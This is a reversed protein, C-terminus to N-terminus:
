PRGGEIKYILDNSFRIIFAYYEIGYAITSYQYMDAIKKVEPEYQRLGSLVEEVGAIYLKLNATAKEKPLFGYFFLKILPDPRCKAMEIPKELWDMFEATGAHSISYMKKLKGGEVVDRLIVAGRSELRKLAPYISGFSADFFNSTSKAMCQKLQYGSMERERLFGMIIYELM